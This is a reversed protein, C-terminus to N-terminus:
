WLLILVRMNQDEKVTLLTLFRIGKNSGSMSGSAPNKMVIRQEKLMAKAQKLIMPNKGVAGALAVKGM